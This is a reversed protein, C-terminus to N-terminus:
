PLVLYLALLKPFNPTGLGTVPDWGPASSFGPTGCGPNGGQTIDNLAAPNAYLTPNVFGVPGKGIALRAQNILTFISAVVPTSASTGYVLRFSADIATVFNAGNASLDPYARTSRSNNFRDNGYPPPYKTFWSQVAARQYSPLPFVNSFGGGSFIVSQCAMEPQIHKALADTISTNTKVQTAGVATM